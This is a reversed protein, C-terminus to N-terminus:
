KELIERRLLSSIYAASRRLREELENEQSLRRWINFADGVQTGTRTACEYTICGNYGSSVIAATLREWNFAGFAPFDRNNESIHLNGIVHANRALASTIDTEEINMHFLDALLKVNPRDIRSLFSRGEDLTNFYDSEYRNLVELCVTIGREGAYDAVPRLAAAARELKLEKPLAAGTCGWPSYLIGSLTAAGIAECFDVCHRLYETGRKVSDASGDEFGADGPLCTCCAARLGSDGLKEKLLAARPLQHNELISFEVVSFGCRKLFPFFEPRDDSFSDIYSCEHIGLEPINKM